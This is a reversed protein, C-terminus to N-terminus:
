MVSQKSYIWLISKYCIYIVNNPNEIIPQVSCCLLLYFIIILSLDIGVDLITMKPFLFCLLHYLCPYISFYLTKNAPFLETLLSSCIWLRSQYNLYILKNNHIMYVCHFMINNINIVVLFMTELCCCRFIGNDM